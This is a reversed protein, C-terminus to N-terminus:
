MKKKLLYEQDQIVDEVKKSLEEQSVGLSISLIAQVLAANM